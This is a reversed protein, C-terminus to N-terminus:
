AFTRWTVVPMHTYYWACIVNCWSCILAMPMHSQVVLMHTGYAYSIAGGAYPHWTYTHAQRYIGDALAPSEWNITARARAVGSNRAPIGRELRQLLRKQDEANEVQGQNGCAHVGVAADDLGRYRRTQRCWGGCSGGAVSVCRVLAGRVRVRAASVKVLVAFAASWKCMASFDLLGKSQEASPDEFLAQVREVWSPSGDSCQAQALERIIDATLASARRGKVTKRCSALELVTTKSPMLVVSTQQLTLDGNQRCVQLVPNHGPELVHRHVGVELMLSTEIRCDWTSMCVEQASGPHWTMENIRRVDRFFDAGWVDPRLQDDLVADVTSRSEIANAVNEVHAAGHKRVMLHDHLHRHTSEQGNNDSPVGGHYQLNTV